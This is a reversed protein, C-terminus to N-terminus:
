KEKNQSERSIISQPSVLLSDELSPHDPNEKKLSIIKNRRNRLVKPLLSNWILSGLYVVCVVSIQMSSTVINTATATKTGTSLIPCSLILAFPVAGKVLGSVFVIQYEYYNLRWKEKGVILYSFLSIFYINFFRSILIGGLIM